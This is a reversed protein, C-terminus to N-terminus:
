KCESWNNGIIPEAQLPVSIKTTNEMAERMLKALLEAQDERVLVTVEDHTQAAIWGDIVHAKMARALAICARNVVHAALGQIPFNCSNNLCSKLKWRAEELGERAAWRKNLLDWGYRGYLDTALPLHRIRGFHTKVKGHHTAGKRCSNMYRKLGPYSDLYSDIIEQAEEYKIDLIQSIRGAEAGYPVALAIVKARQRLEKRAKGLYNFAKKDSSYEPVNFVDIAITSYLDHGNRFVDRLKEDGSVHAFCVPELSSYDANVIKYGAPAVFGRKIANVYTLVLPSLKSEEDKIRPLNQLNPDRSSFRGSTTGHLLYSTYIVGDVQRDLIGQIYTGDLKRLKKYNIITDAFPNQGAMENLVEAGVSPAGGDTFKVPDMELKTFFLWRLHADSGLNFVHAREERALYIKEQVRRTVYPPLPCPGGTGLWDYVERDDPSVQLAQLCAKAFSVAGTKPHTPLPLGLTELLARPYAGRHSVPVEEDLKKVVFEEVLPKVEAMIDTLLQAIDVGIKKKLEEFYEVDIPFGHRKMPIAVERLLPMTEGYFLEVLGEEQIKKEFLHYLQRTLLVDYGCYDALVDLDAKFMEMNEKTTSGANARISAYLAQQAKDAWAGLYEVAVEKLGFPREENVCHKMLLSDAHIHQTIDIGLNNELILTDFIINHGVVKSRACLSRIWGGIWKLQDESWLLARTHDRIPIYVAVDDEVSLGIGHLKATRERVGDTETDIVLLHAASWQAALAQLEAWTAVIRTRFNVSTSV